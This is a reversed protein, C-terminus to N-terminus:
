QNLRAKLEVIEANLTLNARALSDTFYALAAVFNDGTLDRWLEGYRLAFQQGDKLVYTYKGNELTIRLDDSM